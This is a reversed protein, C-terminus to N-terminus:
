SMENSELYEQFKRFFFITEKQLKWRLIELTLSFTM